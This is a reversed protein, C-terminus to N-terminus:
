NGTGVPASGPDSACFNFSVPRCSVNFEFKLGVANLITLFDLRYLYRLHFVKKKKIQYIYLSANKLYLRSLGTILFRLFKLLNQYVVPYLCVVAVLSQLYQHWREWHNLYVVGDTLSNIKKFTPSMRKIRIRDAVFYTGPIGYSIYVTTPM